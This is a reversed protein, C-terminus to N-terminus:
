KEMNIIINFLFCNQLYKKLCSLYRNLFIVEISCPVCYYHHSVFVVFDVLKAVNVVHASVHSLIIKVGEEMFIHGRGSLSFM